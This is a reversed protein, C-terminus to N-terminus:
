IQDGPRLRGCSSAHLVLTGYQRDCDRRAVKSGADTGFVDVLETYHFSETHEAGPFNREKYATIRKVAMKLVEAPRGIGPGGTDTLPHAIHAVRGADALVLCLKYGPDVSM